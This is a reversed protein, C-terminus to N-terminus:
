EEIYESDTMSIGYEPHDRCEIRLEEVVKRFGPRFSDKVDKSYFTQVEADELEVSDLDDADVVKERVCDPCYVEGFFGERRQMLEDEQDLVFSNRDSYRGVGFVFDKVEKLSDFSDLDKEGEIAGRLVEGIKKWGYVKTFSNDQNNVRVYEREPLQDDM